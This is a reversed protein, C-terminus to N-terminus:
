LKSIKKSNALLLVVILLSSASILYSFQFFSSDIELTSCNLLAHSCAPTLIRIEESSKSYCKKAYLFIMKMNYNPHGWSPAIKECIEIHVM